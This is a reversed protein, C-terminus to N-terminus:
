SEVSCTVEPTSMSASAAPLGTTAVCNGCARSTSAPPAPRRTGCQSGAAIAVASREIIVRRSTSALIVAAAAAVAGCRSHGTMASWYRSSAPRSIVALTAAHRGAAHSGHAVGVLRHEIVQVPEGVLAPEELVGEVRGGPALVAIADVVGGAPQDHHAMLRFGPRGCATQGATVEGEDEAREIGGPDTVIPHGDAALPAVLGPCAVPPSPREPAEAGGGRTRRRRAHPGLREAPEAYRRLPTGRM